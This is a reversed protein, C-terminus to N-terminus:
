QALSNCQIVRIVVLLKCVVATCPRLVLQRSDPRRKYNTIDAVISSYGMFTGIAM